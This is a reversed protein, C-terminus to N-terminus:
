KTGWLFHAILMVAAAILVTVIHDRWKGSGEGTFGQKEIIGLRAKIESLMLEVERKPAFTAAQERLQNRFENMSELRRELDVKANEVQRDTMEFQKQINKEILVLKSCISELQAILGSHHLCPDAM